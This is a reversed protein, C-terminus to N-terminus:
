WGVSRGLGGFGAPSGFMGFMESGSMAAAASVMVVATDLAVACWSEVAAGLVIVGLVGADVPMVGPTGPVDGVAGM